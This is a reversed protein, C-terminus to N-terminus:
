ITGAPSLWRHRVTCVSSAAVRGIGDDCMEPVQRRHPYWQWPQHIVHTHTRPCRLWTAPLGPYSSQRRFPLRPLAHGSGPRYPRHGAEPVVHDREAETASTASPRASSPMPLTAAPGSRTTVTSLSPSSTGTTSRERCSLMATSSPSVLVTAIMAARHLEARPPCPRITQADLPSAMIERHCPM